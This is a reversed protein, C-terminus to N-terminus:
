EPEIAAKDGLIIWYRHEPISRPGLKALGIPAIHMCPGDTPKSKPDYKGHPGFNWQADSAPSCLAIGQGSGAFSAM